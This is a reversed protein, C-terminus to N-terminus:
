LLKQSAFDNVDHAAGGDVQHPGIQFSRCCQFHHLKKAAGGDDSRRVPHNLGLHSRNEAANFIFAKLNRSCGIVAFYKIDFASRNEASNSDFAKLDDSFTMQAM